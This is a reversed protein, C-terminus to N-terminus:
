FSNKDIRIFDLDKISQEMAKKCQMLVKPAYLELENLISKSKFIFM